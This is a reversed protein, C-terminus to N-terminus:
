HLYTSVMNWPVFLKLSQEDNDHGVLTFIGFQYEVNRASLIYNYYFEKSVFKFTMPKDHNPQQQQRQQQVDLHPYQPLQVQVQQAHQVHQVPVHQAQVHQAQVHQSQQQVRQM